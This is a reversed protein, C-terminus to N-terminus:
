IEQTDVCLVIQGADTNLFAACRIIEAILELPFRLAHVVLGYIKCIRTYLYLSGAQILPTLSDATSSLTDASACNSGLMTLWTFGVTDAAQRYVLTCLFSTGANSPVVTDAPRRYPHTHDRTSGNYRRGASVISECYNPGWYGVMGCGSSAPNQAEWHYQHGMSVMVTLDVAVKSFNQLNNKLGVGSPCKPSRLM